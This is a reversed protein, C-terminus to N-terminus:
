AKRIEFVLYGWRSQPVLRVARHNIADFIWQVWKWRGLWPLGYRYHLIMRFVPLPQRPILRPRMGTERALLGELSAPSNQKIAAEAKILRPQLSMVPNRGNPEIIIMRGGRRCVRAMERLAPEREPLHHLVDRCLVLDFSEDPFPLREAGCCVFRCHPLHTRAFELKRLFLDIGFLRAGRDRFFFLNGGEGCGVELLREGAQPQVTDLLSKETLSFYPHTTQHFFKGAEAEEFYNTQIRSFDEKPILSLKVKPHGFSRTM